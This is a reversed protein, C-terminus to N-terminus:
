RFMPRLIEVGAMVVADFLRNGYAADDGPPISRRRRLLRVADRYRDGRWSQLKEKIAKYFQRHHKSYSKMTKLMTFLTGRKLFWEGDHVMQVVATYYPLDRDRVDGYRDIYERIEDLQSQYRGKGQTYKPEEIPLDTRASAVLNRMAKSTSALMSASAPDLRATIDRLMDNPLNTFTTM